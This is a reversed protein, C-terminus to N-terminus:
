NLFRSYGLQRTFLVEKVTPLNGIRSSIDNIVSAPPSCLWEVIPLNQCIRGLAEHRGPSRGSGYEVNIQLNTPTPREKASKLTLLSTTSTDGSLPLGKSYAFLLFSFLHDLIEVSIQM